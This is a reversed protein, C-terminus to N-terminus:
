GDPQYSFASPQYSVEGCYLRFGAARSYVPPQKRQVPHVPNEPHSMRNMRDIRDLFLSAYLSM